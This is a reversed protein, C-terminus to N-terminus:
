PQMTMFSDGEQMAAEATAERNRRAMRDAERQRVQSMLEEQTAPRDGAQLEQDAMSASPILLDAVPIRGAITRGVISKLGAEGAVDIAVDRAVESAAEAKDPAALVGITALGAGTAGIGIGLKTDDDLMGLRKFLSKGEESIDGTLDLEGKIKALEDAEIRKKAERGRIKQRIAAEDLKEVDGSEELRTKRVSQAQSLATEELL